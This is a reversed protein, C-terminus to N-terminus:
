RGRGLQDSDGNGFRRFSALAAGDVEQAVGDDGIPEGSEHLHHHGVAVTGARLLQHNIGARQQGQTIRARVDHRHGVVAVGGVHQALQHEVLLLEIEFVCDREHSRPRRVEIADSIPTLEADPGGGVDADDIRGLQGDAVYADHM